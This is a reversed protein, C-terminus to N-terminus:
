GITRPAPLSTQPAQASQVLQHSVLVLFDRGTGTSGCRATSASWGSDSVEFANRLDAVLVVQLGDNGGYAAVEFDAPWSTPRLADVAPTRSHDKRPM